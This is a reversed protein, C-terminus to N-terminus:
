SRVTKRRPAREAHSHQLTVPLHILQRRLKERAETVAVLLSGWLPADKDLSSTVIAAPAPIIRGVIARVRTLLAEGQAGLAGGFVILSPDVVSCVNATAIGILTTAEEIASRAAPDGSEAARFLQPLWDAGDGAVRWRARLAGLGALSELCGRSGFDMEVFQPGVCMRGIEGALFHNGHHLRGNVMIGAGIGTGFSLFVCSDHGRAAGKWHEGLIALNVDNEVIVPAGLAERLIAAMPVQSWGTLNDAVAVIGRDPDVVGPAGAGVAFLRAAPVDAERMLARVNQALGTLLDAPRRELPTPVIRRVLFEGRLDAIGLRTRTPGLDIAAVFGHRANFQMHAPRRGGRSPGAGLNTLLGARILASTLSGITPASLSTAAILETRTFPGERAIAAALVRELNLRRLQAADRASESSKAAQKV